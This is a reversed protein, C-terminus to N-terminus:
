ELISNQTQLQEAMKTLQKIFRHEPTYLFLNKDIVDNLAQNTSHSIIADLPSNTIFSINISTFIIPM